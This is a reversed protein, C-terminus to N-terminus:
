QQPPHMGLEQMIAKADEALIAQQEPTILQAAQMQMRMLARREEPSMSFLMNMQSEMLPRFTEPGMKLVSKTMEAIYKPDFQQVQQMGMALAQEREEPTMEMFLKMSEKMLQAYKELRSEAKAKELKDAKDNTILYLSVLGIDKRTSSPLSEVARKDAVHVLNESTSTQEILLDPFQLGAMLRVTAALSEPKKLLPSDVKLYIKRWELEGGKCIATLADEVPAESVSASVKVDASKEVLIRLGTEKFAENIVDSVKEKTASFTISAPKTEKAPDVADALAPKCLFVVCAALIITRNV